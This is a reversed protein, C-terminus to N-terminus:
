KAFFIACNNNNYFVVRFLLAINVGVLNSNSSSSILLSSLTLLLPAPCCVVDVDDAAVPVFVFPMVFAAAPLPELAGFVDFVALVVIQGVFVIM